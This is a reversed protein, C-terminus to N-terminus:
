SAPTTSCRSRATSSGRSPSGSSGDRPRSRRRLVPRVELRVRHDASDRRPQPADARLRVDLWPRRTALGRWDDVRPGVGLGLVAAVVLFAGAKMFVHAFVQLTAGALAPATGVVVGILMYGAQSISSYALLRKMEKQQLALLNGITMTLVALVGLALETRGPTLDLLPRGRM